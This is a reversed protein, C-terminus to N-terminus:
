AAVLRGEHLRLVRDCRRALEGNHTVLVVGLGRDRCAGELVGFLHDATADDLDGTPEDALLVRPETVMARALAVRGQEGGSLEGSRHEAREQLEVMRLWRWAKALAEHRREGRALLPLAINELATFEPLLYHFQWVFGVARNRVRAADDASLRTLEQEGIWIQGGSPRDLGALLHLLSSKGAGSRGIIAVLEGAGVELDLDRFLQLEGRGGGASGPRAPYSKCLGAARLVLRTVAEVRSQPAVQPIDDGCSIRPWRAM